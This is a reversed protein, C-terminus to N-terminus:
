REIKRIVGTAGFSGHSLFNGVSNKFYQYKITRCTGDPMPNLPKGGYFIARSQEARSQEARSQRSCIVNDKCTLVKKVTKQPDKWETATIASALGDPYIVRGREGGVELDGVINIKRM